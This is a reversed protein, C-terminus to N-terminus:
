RAGTLLVVHLEPPGHIGLSLTMEIDATRSPGSIFTLNSTEDFLAAGHQERLRALAEGLGRVLQDARVVAIHAPALLSALRPRGPGHRLALSGSEAIACAVGSLCVPAPELAQLREKRGEGRVGADLVAVGRQALLAALGPLGIQGLDWAVAQRAAREDLLRAITELAEEEDAVLYANGELKTLEAAFQAPLDDAPPLVYPPPDRPAKAAEAELWLRSSTLSTRLTSLIKERSM